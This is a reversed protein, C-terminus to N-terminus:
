RWEVPQLAPKKNAATTTAFVIIFFSVEWSWSTEQKDTGGPAVPVRYQLSALSAVTWLWLLNEPLM